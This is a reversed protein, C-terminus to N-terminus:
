PRAHSLPPEKNLRFTLTEPDFDVDMALDYAVCAAKDNMDPKPLPPRLIERIRVTAAPLLVDRLYNAVSGHAMIEEDRLWTDLVPPVINWGDSGRRYIAVVYYADEEGGGPLEVALAYQQGDVSFKLGEEPRVTYAM